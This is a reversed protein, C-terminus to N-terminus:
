CVQPYNTGCSGDSLISTTKGLDIGKMAEDMRKEILLGGGKSNIIEKILDYKVLEVKLREVEKILFNILDEQKKLKNKYVEMSNNELNMSNNADIIENKRM